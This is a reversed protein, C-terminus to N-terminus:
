HYKYASNHREWPISERYGIQKKRLPLRAAPPVGASGPPISERYVNVMKIPAYKIQSNRMQELFSFEKDPLTCAGKLILFKCEGNARHLRSEVGVAM